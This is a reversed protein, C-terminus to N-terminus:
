PTANFDSTLLWAAVDGQKMTYSEAGSAGLVWKSQEKEWTYWSWYSPGTGQVGNISTVFFGFAYQTGDVRGGTVKHTTNLLSWGVPIITQNHWAKTGNSYEILLNVSYSVDNLSSLTDVYRKDAARYQAYYYAALSSALVFGSVLILSITFWVNHSKNLDNM